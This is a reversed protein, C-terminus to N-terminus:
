RESHEHIWLSKTSIQLSQYKRDICSLILFNLATEINGRCSGRDKTKKKISEFLEKYELKYKM